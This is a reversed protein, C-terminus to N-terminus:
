WRAVRQPNAASVVHCVHNQGGVLSIVPQVPLAPFCGVGDNRPSAFCRVRFRSIGRHAIACRLDPALAGDRFSRGVFSHTQSNSLQIRSLEAGLATMAWSSRAVWYELSALSPISPGRRVPYGAQQEARPAM